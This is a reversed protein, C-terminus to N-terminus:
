VGGGGGPPAPAPAAPGYRDPGAEGAPYAALHRYDEIAQLIQTYFRDPRPVLRLIETGDRGASQIELSGAGILRDALPRRVVTDQIRDLAISETVRSVVGRALVIRHSTLTYTQFRWRLLRLLFWGVVVVAVVVDAIVKAGSVNASGVRTPILQILVLPVALCVLAVLTTPVLVAVHQRETAVVTEGALLHPAMHGGDHPM